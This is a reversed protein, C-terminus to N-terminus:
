GAPSRDCRDVHRASELYQDMIYLATGAVPITLLAAVLAVSGWPARGDRFCIRSIRWCGLLLLFICAFHWLFIAWDLPLHTIRVSTAVIPAFLTMRAHSMFYQDNFPYLAPHLHKIVGPLYFEADEIGPHYGHVLVAGISILFLLAIQRRSLEQGGREAYCPGKYGLERAEGSDSTEKRQRSAPRFAQVVM